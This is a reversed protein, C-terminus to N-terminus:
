LEHVVLLAESIIRRIDDSGIAGVDYGGPNDQDHHITNPLLSWIQNILDRKTEYPRGSASLTVIFSKISKNQKIDGELLDYYKRKMINEFIHRVNQLHGINLESNPLLVFQKLEDLRRYYDDMFIMHTNPDLLSFDSTHKSPNWELMLTTADTSIEASLMKLFDKEHTLTIMQTPAVTDDVIKRMYQVTNNRRDNDFSSVPDDLLVILESRRPDNVVSAFFFALCLARRDSESLTHKSTHSGKASTAAIGVAHANDFELYFLDNHTRGRYALNKVQFNVGLTKLCNNATTMSAEYLSNAYNSQEELAQNLQPTIESDNENKIRQYETCKTEWPESYRKKAVEYGTLINRTHKVKDTLDGEYEKRVIEIAKQIEAAESQIIKLSSFDFNYAFNKKKNLEDTFTDIASDIKDDAGGLEISVGLRGLEIVGKRLTSVVNWQNFFKECNLRNNAMENYSQSFYENYASILAKAEDSSIHQSCYPCTSDDKRLKTGLQLFDKAETKDADDLMSSHIHTSIKSIDVSLVTNLNAELVVFDPKKLDDIMTSLQAHISEKNKYSNLQKIQEEIHTDVDDVEAVGLFAEFDPYGAPKNATYERTTTGMATANKRQKETLDVVNKALRVGKSGLIFTEIKKQGDDSIEEDPSFFNEHIYRTDFIRINELSNNWSNGDFIYNTGDIVLVVRQDQTASFSKRGKIFDPNNTQLSRAIAAFTSKGHTNPAYVHTRKRLQYQPQGGGTKMLRGVNEIDQIKDIM